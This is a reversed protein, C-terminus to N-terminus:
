LRQFTNRECWFKKQRPSSMPTGSLMSLAFLALPIVWVVKWFAASAQGRWASFLKQLSRIGLPLFVPILVLRAAFAAISHVGPLLAAGFRFEIFNGIGMVFLSFCLAYATAFVNQLTCDRLLLFPVPTLVLLGLIMGTIQGAGTNALLAPFSLYFVAFLSFFGAYILLLTRLRVRLFRRLPYYQMVLMFVANLLVNMGSLFFGLPEYGTWGFLTNLLGM